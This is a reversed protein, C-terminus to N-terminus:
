SQQFVNTRHWKLHEEAPRMTVGKRFKLSEQNRQQLWTLEPGWETFIEEAVLIEYTPTITWLGRDFMWHADRSLALGNKISNNRSKSFAHIHAAEVLSHGRQTHLGYGTLTCTFQYQSVVGVRFRATRGVQELAQDPQETWEIQRLKARGFGLAAYLARQEPEPFWTEVLQRRIQDRRVKSSLDALFEECLEIAHTSHPGRSPTGEKTRAQWFGQRSLHHFPLDLGPAGGWRLQCISWRFRSPDLPKLLKNGGHGTKAYTEWRRWLGREGYASGIYIKGSKTDVIRYIGSTASLAVKWDRHLSPTAIIDKLEQWTLVVNQYGPFGVQNGPPLVQFVERDKRQFWGMGSWQIIVRGRLSEFGAIEELDYWIRPKGDAHAKKLYAPAGSFDSKRFDRRGRVRHVSHFEAQNGEIAIFSAVVECGDFPRVAPDQEAHYLNFCGDEIIQRISRGRHDCHRIMKIQNHPTELGCSTLLQKVTLM